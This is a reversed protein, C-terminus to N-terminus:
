SRSSSAIRTRRTSRTAPATCPEARYSACGRVMQLAPTQKDGRTLGAVSPLVHTRVEKIQVDLTLLYSHLLEGAAALMDLIYRSLTPLSALHSWTPRKEM